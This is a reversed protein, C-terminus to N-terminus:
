SIHDDKLYDLEDKANPNELCAKYPKHVSPRINM